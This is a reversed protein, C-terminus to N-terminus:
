LLSDITTILHELECRFYENGFDNMQTFNDDSKLTSLILEESKKSDKVPKTYLIKSKKPYQRLRNAINNTRGVKYINTYLHQVCHIIYIYEINIHIDKNNQLNLNETQLGAIEKKLKLIETQLGTNETQLKLNKTHLDANDKKLKLNGSQLNTNDKKLKLNETQLGTNDKKLKLNETHLINNDTQLANNKNQYNSYKSQLNLYETQLNGIINEDNTNLFDTKNQKSLNDQKSLLIHKQTTNHILQHSPRTFAVNCLDCKLEEKLKIVDCPTKNNKHRELKSNSDFCKNCKLCEYITM